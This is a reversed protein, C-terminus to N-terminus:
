CRGHCYQCPVAGRELRAMEEEFFARNYLDTLSDHTGMYRLSDEMRKRESIDVLSVVNEETGPIKSVTFLVDLHQGDRTILRFENHLPAVVAGPDDRRARYYGLMRKLDSKKVFEIWKRKGELEAKRNGTMKEFGSSAMSITMDDQVILMATGTNEIITRYRIESARLEEEIRKRDTIDMSSGLAATEGEFVIPTVTEIIWRICGTKTVMRYEYPSKRKGKLIARAHNKIIERDDPHVIVMPDKGLLEEPTHDTYGAAQANIYLFKGKRIV